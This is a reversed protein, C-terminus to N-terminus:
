EITLFGTFGTIDFVEMIQRGANRIVLRGKVAKIRKQAALIARLATSCIYVTDVMDIVLNDEGNDLYTNLEKVLAPSADTDLRKETKIVIEDKM